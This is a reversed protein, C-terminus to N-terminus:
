VYPTTPLRLHTYSVPALTMEIVVSFGALMGAAILHYRGKAFLGSPAHSTKRFLILYYAGFLLCAASQHGYFLTAYM